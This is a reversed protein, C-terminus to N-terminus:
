NKWVGDELRLSDDDGGSQDEQGSDPAIENDGGDDEDEQDAELIEWMKTITNEEVTYFGVRMGEKFSSLTVLRGYGNRLICDEHLLYLGENITVEDVEAVTDPFGDINGDFLLAGHAIPDDHLDYRQESQVPHAAIFVLVCLGLIALNIRGTFRLM